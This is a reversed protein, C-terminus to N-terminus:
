PLGDAAAARDPERHAFGHKRFVAIWEGIPPNFTSRSAPSGAVRWRHGGLLNSWWASAPGGGRGPAWALEVIATLASFPSCAGQGCCCGRVERSATQPPTSPGERASHRLLRVDFSSAGEWVPRSPAARERPPVRSWRRGDGAPEHDLKGAFLKRYRDHAAGQRSLAISWQARGRLRAGLVDLGNIDGLVGLKSEPIQWFPGWAPAAPSGRAARATGPRTSTPSGCGMSRPQCGSPPSSRPQDVV